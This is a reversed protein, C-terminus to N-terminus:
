SNNSQSVFKLLRKLGIFYSIWLYFFRLLNEQTTIDFSFDPDMKRLIEEILSSLKSVPVKKLYVGSDTFLINSANSSDDNISEIEGLQESVFVDETGIEKYCIWCTSPAPLVGEIENGCYKCKWTM